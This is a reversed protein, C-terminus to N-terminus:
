FIKGFCTTPICTIDVVRGDDTQKHCRYSLSLSEISDYKNCMTGSYGKLKMVETQVPSTTCTYNRCQQTATPLIEVSMAHCM